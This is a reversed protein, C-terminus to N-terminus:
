SIRTLLSVSDVLTNASLMWGTAMALGRVLGHFWLFCSL